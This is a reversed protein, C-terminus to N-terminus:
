DIIIKKMGLRSEIYAKDMIHAVLDSGFPFFYEVADM